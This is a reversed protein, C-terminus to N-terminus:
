DLLTTVLVPLSWYVVVFWWLRGCVVLLHSRVVLLLRCVVLLRDCIAVGACWVLFKTEGERVQYNCPVVQNQFVYEETGFLTPPPPITSPPPGFKSPTRPGVFTDLILLRSTKILPPIRCFDHNLCM